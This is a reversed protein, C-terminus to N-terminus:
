PITHPLFPYNLRAKWSVNLPLNDVHVRFQDTSVYRPKRMPSRDRNDATAHGYADAGADAVSDRSDYAGAYGQRGGYSEAYAYGATNRGYDRDSYAAPHGYSRGDYAERAGHSRHTFEVHADTKDQRGYDRGYDRRDDTPRDYGREVGPARELRDADREFDDRPRRPAADVPNRNHAYRVGIRVGLLDYQDLKRM